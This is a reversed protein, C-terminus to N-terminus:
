LLNGVGAKNENHNIGAQLERTGGRHSVVIFLLSLELINCTVVVSNAVLSISLSRQSVLLYHTQYQGCCGAFQLLGLQAYVLNCM